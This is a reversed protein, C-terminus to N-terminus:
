STVPSTSVPTEITDDPFVTFWKTDREQRLFEKPALGRLLAFGVTVPGPSALREAYSEEAESRAREALAASEDWELTLVLRPDELYQWISMSARDRMERIVGSWVGPVYIRGIEAQDDDSVRPVNKIGDPM